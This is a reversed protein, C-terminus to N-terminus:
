SIFQVINKDKFDVNALNYKFCGLTEVGLFMTFDSFSVEDRSCNICKFDLIKCEFIAIFSYGITWQKNIKSSKVIKISNIVFSTIRFKKGIPNIMYTYDTIDSQLEISKRTSLDYYNNGVYLKHQLFNIFESSFVNIKYTKNLDIKIGQYYSLPKHYITGM